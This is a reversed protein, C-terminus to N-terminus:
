VGLENKSLNLGYIYPLLISPSMNLYDINIIIIVSIIYTGKKLHNVRCKIIQEGIM